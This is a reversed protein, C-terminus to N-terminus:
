NGNFRWQISDVSNGVYDTWSMSEVHGDAFLVNIKKRNGHTGMPIAKTLDKRYVNTPQTATGTFDPVNGSGSAAPAMLIYRTTSKVQILDGNAGSFIDDNFGYSVPYSPPKIERKDFPSVFVEAIRTVRRQDAITDSVGGVKDNVNAITDGASEALEEDNDNAFAIIGIGLQRLNSADSTARAKEQMSSFVPLTIGALVAVIAIVVLLEILTFANFRQM